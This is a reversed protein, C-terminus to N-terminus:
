CDNIQVQPPSAEVAEAFDDMFHESTPCAAVGVIITSGCGHCKWLDGRWLKYPHWRDPETTGPQADGNDPMGEMFMYGNKEPRYFRQCPVCAPKM